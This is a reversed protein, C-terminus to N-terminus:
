YLNPKKMKPNDITGKVIDAILCSNVPPAIVNCGEFLTESRDSGFRLTVTPLGLINSEEQM